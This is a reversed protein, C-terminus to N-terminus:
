YGIMEMIKVILHAIEILNRLVPLIASVIM